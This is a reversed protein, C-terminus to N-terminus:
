QWHRPIISLNHDVDSNIGSKGLMRRKRSTRNGTATRQMHTCSREREIDLLWNNNNKRVCGDQWGTRRRKYHIEREKEESSGDSDGASVAMVIRSVLEEWCLTKELIQKKFHVSPIWVMYLTIKGQFTHQKRRKPAWCKWYKKKKLKSDTEFRLLTALVTM